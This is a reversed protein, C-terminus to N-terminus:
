QKITNLNYIISDIDYNPIAIWNLEVNLLSTDNTFVNILYTLSNNLSDYLVFRENNKGSGQIKTKYGIIMSNQFNIQPLINNCSNSTLNEHLESESKVLFSDINLSIDNILMCNILEDTNIYTFNVTDDQPLFALNTDNPITDQFGNPSNDVEKSCNLITMAIILTPLVIYTM